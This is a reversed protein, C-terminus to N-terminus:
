DKPIAEGINHYFGNIMTRGDPTLQYLGNPNIVINLKELKTLINRVNQEEMNLKSCLNTMSVNPNFERLYFLIKLTDKDKVVEFLEFFNNTSM